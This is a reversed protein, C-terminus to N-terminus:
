LFVTIILNKIPTLDANFNERLLKLIISEAMLQSIGQSNMKKLSMVALRGLKSNGAPPIIRIQNV